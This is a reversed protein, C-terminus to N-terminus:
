LRHPDGGSPEASKPSCLREATGDLDVTWGSASTSRRCRVHGLPRESVAASRVAKRRVKEVPSSAKPLKVRRPGAIYAESTYSCIRAVDADDPRPRPGAGYPTLAVVPEEELMEVWVDPHDGNDAGHHALKFLSARERPRGQSGLVAKWGRDASKENQLDAGLLVVVDGVRVHLAVSAENPDPARVRRRAAAMPLAEQVFARKSRLSAANSPSLAWIERTLGDVEDLFLRQDARAQEVTRRSEKLEKLTQRMERIGSGIRGPPEEIEAQALSAFEQSRLAESMYVTATNCLQTLAGFGAVHDDHWHSALLWRVEEFPIGMRELYLPPYPTPPEPEALCCDVILWDGWGLHVLVCEGYGRGVISVEV